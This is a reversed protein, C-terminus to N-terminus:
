PHGATVPVWAFPPSQVSVRNGGPFQAAQEENMTAGCASNLGPTQVNTSQDAWVFYGISVSVLCWM